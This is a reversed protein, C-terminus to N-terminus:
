PQQVVSIVPRTVQRVSETPAEPDAHFDLKRAIGDLTCYGDEIARILLAIKTNAPRGADRYKVRIRALHTRVTAGTVFLRTAVESKTDCILWTTLIEIERASLEPTSTKDVEDVHGGPVMSGVVSAAELPEEINM